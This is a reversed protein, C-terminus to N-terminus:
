NNHQHSEEGVIKKKKIIEDLIKNLSKKLDNLGRSFSQFSSIENLNNETELKLLNSVNPSIKYPGNRHQAFCVLSGGQLDNRQVDVIELGKKNLFKVLPGLSHYSLHEHFITGILKKQIVDLLYSVEFSFIGDKDLINIISDTVENMDDIHAYVNNATIFNALGWTKKIEESTKINM